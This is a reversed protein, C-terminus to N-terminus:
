LARYYLVGDREERALVRRNILLRLHAMAEMLAMNRTGASMEPWPNSDWTLKAAIQYPTRPGERVAEVAEALRQRHHELLEDVRGALDTFAHEHAPLVMDAQLARTQGLSTLYDALPDGKVWASLSVNPSIRPLIHDGSFLLKRREDHVVLHGPSHGPTWIAYLNASGPVVTRAENVARDVKFHPMIGGMRRYKSDQRGADEEPVGLRRNAQHAGQSRSDEEHRHGDERPVSADKVHMLVEAGSAEKVRAALGMHDPHFHTIVVTGIDTASVHHAALEAQFAKWSIDDNWGADVLILRKGEEILYVLTYNLSGDPILTNKPIPIKLQFVGDAVQAM